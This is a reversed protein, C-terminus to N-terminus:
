NPPSSSESASSSGALDTPFGRNSLAMAFEVSNKLVDSSRWIGQRNKETTNRWYDCAKEWVQMVKNQDYPVQAVSITFDNGNYKLVIQLMGTSDDINSLQLYIDDTSYGLRRFAHWYALAQCYEPPPKKLQTRQERHGHRRHVRCQLPDGEECECIPDIAWPM